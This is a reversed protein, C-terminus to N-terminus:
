SSSSSGRNCFRSGTLESSCILKFLKKNVTRMEDRASGKHVPKEVITHGGYLLLKDAHNGDQLWGKEAYAERIHEDYKFLM